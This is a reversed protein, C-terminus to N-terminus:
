CPTLLLHWSSRTSHCTLLTTHRSSDVSVESAFLVVGGVGYTLINDVTWFLMFMDIFGLILILTNTRIHFFVSPGPYPMQDM